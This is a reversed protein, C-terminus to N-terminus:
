LCAPGVCYVPLGEVAPSGQNRPVSVKCTGNAVNGSPDKAQYHVTYVRGDKTQNREARLLALWPKKIQMDGLTNGDSNGPADEEEDSLIKTIVAYDKLPNMRGSCTDVTFNACKM